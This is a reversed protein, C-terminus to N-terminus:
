VVSKDELRKRIGRCLAGLKGGGVEFSKCVQVRM